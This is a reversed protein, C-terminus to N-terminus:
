HEVLGSRYIASLVGTRIQEWKAGSWDPEKLPSAYEEGARLFYRTFTSPLIGWKKLFQVRAQ